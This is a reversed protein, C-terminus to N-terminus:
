TDSSKSSGYLRALLLISSATLHLAYEAYEDSADEEPDEKALAPLGSALSSRVAHMQAGLASPYFSNQELVALLDEATSKPDFSYGSGMCIAKITSEFAESASRVAQKNARKRRHEFAALIQEEADTFGEDLLFRLAPKTIEQHILENDKRIIEGQIFEYGLSHQKFRHNLERIAQDFHGIMDPKGILEPQKMLNYIVAFTFDIFDLIEIEPAESIFGEIGWKEQGYSEYFRNLRKVGLERAFSDHLYKWSERSYSHELHDYVDSVIYFLQNRFKSSFSDYIFLDPEGKQIKIRQSYLEYM